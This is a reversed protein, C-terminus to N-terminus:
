RDGYGSVGGIRNGILHAVGINMMSLPLDHIHVYFECVDLMMLTPNDTEGISRLIILNKEFNWPSGDIAMQKDIIHKFRILFHGEPLQKTDIGKVPLMMSQLSSTLAEFRYPKATLVRGVLYLDLSEKNSKWLGSPLTVGDEEDDKLKWVRSLRDLYAWIELPRSDRFVGNVIMEFVVCVVEFVVCVAAQGGVDHVPCVFLWRVVSQRSFPLRGALTQM